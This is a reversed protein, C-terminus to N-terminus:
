VGSVPNQIILVSVFGRTACGNSNRPWSGTFSRRGARATRVWEDLPKLIKLLATKRRFNRKDLSRGSV